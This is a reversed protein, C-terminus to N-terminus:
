DNEKQKLTIIIETGASSGDQHYLDKIKVSNKANLMKIRETTIEIGYSKHQTHETKLNSSAQRGIGNDKISIELTDENLPHASIILLGKDKLNRLGHWIANEAFPQIILPPVKSYITDIEPDIEYQYDFSHELRASELELYLKLTHLENKLSIMEHKSNDLISRMLKSFTTLYVSADETKNQIIFSNISNLTNFLFHPNMQSRLTLMEAEKIKRLYNQEKKQKRWLYGNILLMLLIAALIILTYFLNSKTFPPHLLLNLQIEKSQINGLNDTAQITLHYNGPQLYNLSIEPNEGLNHWNKDGSFRYRFNMKGLNQFNLDSFKIKIDTQNKNLELFNKKPMKTEGNVLIQTIAFRNLFLPKVAKIMDVIVIGDDVGMAIKENSLECFSHSLNNTPLGDSLNLNYVKNNDKRYIHLGEGTAFFVQNNKNEAIGHLFIDNITYEEVDVRQLLKGQSDTRNWGGYATFLLTNGNGQGIQTFYDGVFPTKDPNIKKDAIDIFKQQQVNFYNIGFSKPMWGVLWIKDNADVMIDQWKNDIWFSKHNGFNKLILELSPYKYRTIPQSAYVIWLENQPTIITKVIETQNSLNKLNLNKFAIGDWFKINESGSLFLKDRSFNIAYLKENKSEYVKKVENASKTWVEGSKTLMWITGFNDQAISIVVSPQGSNLKVIDISPHVPHLKVLGKTTGVWIIKTLPDFQIHQIIQKETSYIKQYKQNSNRLFIAEQTALVIGKDTEDLDTVVLNGELKPLNIISQTTPNYEFLEGHYTAFLIHGSKLKLASSYNLNSLNSNSYKQLKNEQESWTLLGKPTVVWIQNQIELIKINFNIEKNGKHYVYSKISQQQPSYYKIHEFDTSWIRNQSDVFLNEFHDNNPDSDTNITSVLNQIPQYISRFQNLGNGDFFYFEGKSEAISMVNMKLNKNDVFRYGDYMSIGRKNAIYLEGTPSIATSYIFESNLGEKVGYLTAMYEQAFNIICFLLALCIILYRFRSQTHM